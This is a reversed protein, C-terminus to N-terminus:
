RQGSDDKAAPLSGLRQALDDVMRADVPALLGRDRLDRAVDFARSLHEGGRILDVESMTVLSVIFHRQYDARGPEAQALRESIAVSKAFAQRAGEDQGLDRFLRGMRDYSNSLDHQYDTRAPEAQALRERIALARAFAQRAEERQGLARALDGMRVCSVSLDRQYDARDPEARVLRERRM